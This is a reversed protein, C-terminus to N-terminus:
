MTVCHVRSSIAHGARERSRRMWAGTLRSPLETSQLWDWSQIHKGLTMLKELFQKEL